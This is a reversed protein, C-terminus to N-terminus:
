HMGHVVGDRATEEALHERPSVRHPLPPQVCRQPARHRDDQDYHVTRLVQRTRMVLLLLVGYLRLHRRGGRTYDSHAESSAPGSKNVPTRPLSTRPVERTLRERRKELFRIGAIM